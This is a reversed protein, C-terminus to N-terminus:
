RKLVGGPSPAFTNAPLPTNFQVDRIEVTIVGLSGETTTRFPVMEGDIARYDEYRTTTGAMERRVILSSDVTVFLTVPPGVLPTLELVFVEDGDAARRSIRIQPYLERLHLLPHLDCEGLAVANADADNVADQGFTTEQGGRAGDFYTRLRAIPVGAAVWHEDESCKAPAQARVTLEAVVGQNAYSKNAHLEFSTHRQLAKRGGVAKIMRAVLADVASVEAADSTAPLSEAPKPPSPPSTPVPAPAATDDGLLVPWLLEGAAGIQTLRTPSVNALLVFGTRRSPVFSVLASIGEGGGNHEVVKLGHWSYVAWGLAYSLTENIAIQPTTLETFLRRSVLRGDETRGGNALMRLWRAMDRASSAIAGAPAMADLSVTPPVARRGPAYGVVHNPMNALDGVSALSSTMHLPEFITQEIAREWNTHRVHGVIEGAATFMANSYQFSTRPKAVPLASVTARVYHERDLVGPVAALDAKALLGTQHSLMDRLTVTDDAEPDAMTFYSVYRGPRDNLSLLGDDEAIAVAMSTFSKTCSGIPFLTDVNAPLNRAVDRLGFANVYAVEGDVVVAIALGPIGLERQQQELITDVRAVAAADLSKASPAAPPPATSGRKEHGGCGSSGLVVAVISLALQINRAGEDM